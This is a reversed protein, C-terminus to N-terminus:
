ATIDGDDAIEANVRCPITCENTADRMSWQLATRAPTGFTVVKVNCRTNFAAARTTLPVWSTETQL